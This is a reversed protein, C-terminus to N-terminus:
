AHESAPEVTPVVRRCFTQHCVFGRSVLGEATWHEYPILRAHRAADCVEGLHAHRGDGTLVVERPTGLAEAIERTTADQAALEEARDQLEASWTRMAVKLEGHRARLPLALIEAADM